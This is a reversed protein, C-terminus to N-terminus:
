VKYTNAATNKMMVATDKTASTSVWVLLRDTTDVTTKPRKDMPKPYLRLGFILAGAEEVAVGM